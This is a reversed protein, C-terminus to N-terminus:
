VFVKEWQSVINDILFDKSKEKAGVAVTGLLEENEMLSSVCDAYAQINFPALLYGSSAQDIIDTASSFSNFSIPVCGCSMAEVLVLPLGETESTLCFIRSKKYYELPAKYGEFYVNKLQLDLAMNEYQEKMPGEGVILLRWGPYVPFLLKWVKLLNDLRKEPSLRGVFLLTNEKEIDKIDLNFEDDVPNHICVFKEDAKIGSFWEFGKYYKDSLFVLKDSFRYQLRLRSRYKFKFLLRWLSDIVPQLKLCKVLPNNIISGRHCSWLADLDSHFVTLRKVPLDKSWEIAWLYSPSAGHQNIVVDIQKEVIFDRFWTRNADNTSESIPNPLYYQAEGINDQNQEASLLLCNHGKEVFAKYLTLSVAAIGGNKRNFTTNLCFLINM